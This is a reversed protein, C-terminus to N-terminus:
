YKTALADLEIMRDKLAKKKTRATHVGMCISRGLIKERLFVNSFATLSTAAFPIDESILAPDDDGFV